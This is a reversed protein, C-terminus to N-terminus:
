GKNSAELLQKTLGPRKFTKVTEVLARVNEVPTMPLIGHGLNFVFGPYDSTIKLIKLAQSKVQDQSGFALLEPDLDGQLVLSGQAKTLLPKLPYSGDLSIGTPGLDMFDEFYLSSHRSFVLVPIKLDKVFDVLIQLYPKAFERFHTLSLCGSWSDFIQIAQVGADIQMKLYSKTQETLLNLLAKLPEPNEYIWRKTTKLKDTNGSELLYSLVTFPGGCFGILPCNLDQTLTRIARSIFSLSKEVNEVQLQKIDEVTKIKPFIVPGIGPQFDVKQGLTKLIILIDSFLIAADLGFEDIPMKTVKVIIEPDEFMEILSHKERIQQYAPLYRGAQRMIWIPPRITNEFRLAELFRENM